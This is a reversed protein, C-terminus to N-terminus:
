KEKEKNEDVNNNPIYAFPNTIALSKKQILDTSKHYYPKTFDIPFAQHSVTIKVNGKKLSDPVVIRANVYDIYVKNKDVNKGNITIQVSQPSITSSDLQITDKEM